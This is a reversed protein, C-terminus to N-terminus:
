INVVEWAGFNYNWYKLAICSILELASFPATFAILLIQTKCIIIYVGKEWKEWNNTIVISHM